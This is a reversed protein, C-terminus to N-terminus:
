SGRPARDFPPDSLPGPQTSLPDTDAGNNARRRNAIMSRRDACFRSGSRALRERPRRSANTQVRLMERSLGGLGGAVRGRRHDGDRAQHQLRACQAGDRNGSEAATEHSLANRGDLVQHHRVSTGSDSSTNDNKGSASRSTGACDVLVAEHEWTIGAEECARIEESACYGRDAV